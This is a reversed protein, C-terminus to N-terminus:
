NKIQQVAMSTWDHLFIAEWYQAAEANFIVLSADRNTTVGPPSWNQSGVAVASSDVVIGKNHLNNQIRVLSADIGAAQLQELNGPKAFASLILRVDVGARVKKAVAEILGALIVGEPKDSPTIYPIQMYLTRTASDILQLIVNAYNDPTLVPQIKMRATITKPPFFRKPVRSAMPMDPNSTFDVKIM